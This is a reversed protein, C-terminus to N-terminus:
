DTIGAAALRRRVERKVADLDLPASEGRASQEEAIRLKARIAEINVNPGFFDELRAEDSASNEMDGETCPEAQVRLVEIAVNLGKSPDKFAGLAVQRQLFAENESSLQYTM